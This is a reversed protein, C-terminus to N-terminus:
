WYRVGKLHVLNSFFPSACFLGCVFEIKYCQLIGTVEKNLAFKYGLVSAYLRRLFLESRTGKIRLSIKEFDKKGFCYTFPIIERCFNLFRITNFRKFILQFVDISRVFCVFEIYISITSGRCIM